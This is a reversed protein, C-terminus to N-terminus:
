PLVKLRDRIDALKASTEVADGGALDKYARCANFFDKVLARYEQVFPNPRSIIRGDGMEAEISIPADRFAAENALLKDQMVLIAQLLTEPTDKMTKNPKM